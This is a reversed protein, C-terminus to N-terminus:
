FYLTTTPSFRGNDPNVVFGYKWQLTPTGVVQEFDASVWGYVTLDYTDTEWGIYVATYHIFSYGGPVHTVAQDETVGGTSSSSGALAMHNGYPEASSSSTALGHYTSTTTTFSNYHYESLLLVDERNRQLTTRDVRTVQHTFVWTGDSTTYYDQDPPSPFPGQLSPPSFSTGIYELIDVRHDYHSIEVREGAKNYTILLIRRSYTHQERRWGPSSPVILLSDNKIYYEYAIYTGNPVYGTDTDPGSNRNKNAVGSEYLEDFSSAVVSVSVSPPTTANGGSVEFDVIAGTFWVDGEYGHFHASAKEGSVPSFTVHIYALDRPPTTTYTYVSDPISAVVTSSSRDMLANIHAARVNRNQIFLHWTTGDPARYLWGDSGVESNSGAGHLVSYWKKIGHLINKGWKSSSKAKREDTNWFAKPLEWNMLHAAGIRSSSLRTPTHAAAVTSDRVAAPLAAGVRDRWGQVTSYSGHYWDGMTVVANGGETVFEPHGGRTKLRTTSGDANNQVKTRITDPGGVASIMKREDSAGVPAGDRTPFIPKFFEDDAM